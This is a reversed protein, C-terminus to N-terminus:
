LSWYTVVHYCAVALYLTVGFFLVMRSKKFNTHVCLFCLILGIGLCKALIFGTPGLTLLFRAIPNIEVAGKELQCLTFIADLLNLAYLSLVLLLVKPSYQDVYLGEILGNRRESRRRGGFFTYRSIMPTPQFRRDEDSHRRNEGPQESQSM